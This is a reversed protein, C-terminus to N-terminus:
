FLAFLFVKCFDFDGKPQARTLIMTVRWRPQETHASCNRRIDDEPNNNRSPASLTVRTTEDRRSETQVKSGCVEEYSPPPEEADDHDDDLAPEFRVVHQAM